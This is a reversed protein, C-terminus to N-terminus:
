YNASYCRHFGFFIDDQDSAGVSADAFRHHLPQGSTEAIDHAEVALRRRRWRGAARVYRDINSGIVAHALSQTDQPFVVSRVDGGHDM